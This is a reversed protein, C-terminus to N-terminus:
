VRATVAKRSQHSSWATRRDGRHLRQVHGGPDLPLRAFAGGGVTFCCRAAIRWRNSQSTMPWIMGSLRAAETRPGACLTRLPMHPQALTKPFFQKASAADRQASLLFDITQGLNDVARYLYTWIGKAKIYTEDM